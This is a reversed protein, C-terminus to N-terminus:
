GKLSNVLDVYEQMAAEKSRGKMEHWAENKARAVFDFVNAPTEINIDGVESQKFLGYLKLLVENSPATPLLRSDAVAQDFLEKNTM